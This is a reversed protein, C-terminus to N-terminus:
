SVKATIVVGLQRVGWFTGEITFLAWGARDTALKCLERLASREKQAYTSPKKYQKIHHYENFLFVPLTGFARGRNEKDEM